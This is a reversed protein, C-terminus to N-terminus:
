EFGHYHYGLVEESNQLATTGYILQLGVTQNRIKRKQVM